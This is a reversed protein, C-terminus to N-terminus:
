GPQEDESSVAPSKLNRLLTSHMHQVRPIAKGPSSVISADADADEGEGDSLLTHGPLQTGRRPLRCLFGQRLEHIATEAHNGVTQRQDHQFPKQLQYNMWSASLDSPHNDAFDIFTWDIEESLYEEQEFKFVHQNFEQQFKENAYNICFQEFSNKAFHEFGYVDLVGPVSSSSESSSLHSNSSHEM